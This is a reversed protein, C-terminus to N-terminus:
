DAFVLSTTKGGFWIQTLKGEANRAVATNAAKAKNEEVKATAKVESKGSKFIVDAKNGDITYTIKYVGADMKTGNVHFPAKVEINATATTAASAFLVAILVFAITVVAKVSHNM